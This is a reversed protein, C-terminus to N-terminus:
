EVTYVISVATDAWELIKSNEQSRLYIAPRFEGFSRYYHSKQSVLALGSCSFDQILERCGDGFNWEVAPCQAALHEPIKLLFTVQQPRIMASPHAALELKGATTARTTHQLMHTPMTACGSLCITMM